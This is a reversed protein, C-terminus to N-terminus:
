ACTLSVANSGDVNAVNEVTTKVWGSHACNPDITLTVGPLSQAKVTDRGNVLCYLEYSDYNYLMCVANEPVYVAQSVKSGTGSLWVEHINNTIAETAQKAVAAKAVNSTSNIQGDILVVLGAALVLVFGAVLFFEVAIQGKRKM